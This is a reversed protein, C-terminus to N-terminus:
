GKYGLIQDKSLHKQCLALAKQVKSNCVREQPSLTQFCNWAELYHKDEVLCLGLLRYVSSSPAIKSLWLCYLSSRTYEGHSYLYEADAFFNAIEEEGVHVSSIGTETIFNDLKLLRSISHFDLAQKYAQKIFLFVMNECEIDYNTFKLILHLLSLSKEDKGGEKWLDTAGKVLLRVLRQRGIDYSQISEWLDLYNRLKSFQEDEQSLIDQITSSSLSLKESISINPELIQLLSLCQKAEFTQILKSKMSLWSSLSFVLEQKLSNLNSSTTLEKCFWVANDLNELFDDVLPQIALKLKPQPYFRLWFELLQVSSARCTKPLTFLHKMLISILEEEPLLQTYPCCELVHIKKLYFLIMDYYDPFIHESKSLNLELFYSRSLLLMTYDYTRTNWERERKLLKEIIQHLIERGEPFRGIEIFSHAIIHDLFFDSFLTRLNVNLWPSTALSEQKRWDSFFELVKSFNKQKYACLAKFFPLYATNPLNQELLNLLVNMSNVDDLFFSNIIRGCFLEEQFSISKGEVKNAIKTFIQDALDFRKQKQLSFGQFCLAQLQQSSSLYHLLTEEGECYDIHVAGSNKKELSSKSHCLYYLGGGSFFCSLFFVSFLIYRFM